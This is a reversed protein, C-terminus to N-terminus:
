LHRKELHSLTHDPEFARDIGEGGGLGGQESLSKMLASKGAEIIALPM